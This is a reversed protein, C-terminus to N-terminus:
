AHWLVTGPQTWAHKLSAYKVARHGRNKQLVANLEQRQVKTHNLVQNAHRYTKSIMNRTKLNLTHSELMNVFLAAPTSAKLMRMKVGLSSNSKQAAKFAYGQRLSFAACIQLHRKRFGPLMKNLKRTPQNLILHQSLSHKRRNYRPEFANDQVYVNNYLMKKFGVNSSSPKLQGVIGKKKYLNRCKKLDLNFLNM